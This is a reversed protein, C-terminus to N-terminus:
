GIRGSFSEVRRYQAAESGGIVIKGQSELWAHGHVKGRHNRALGIRLDSAVGSRGLILQGALARTLCHRTGPVHRSAVAVAWAARAPEVSHGRPRNSSLDALRRRLRTFPVLILALRIGALVAAAEILLFRDDRNLRFFKEIRRGPLGRIPDGHSSRPSTDTDPERRM